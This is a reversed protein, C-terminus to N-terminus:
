ARGRSSGRVRAAAVLHAVRVPEPLASKDRLDALLRRAQAEDVGAFTLYLGAEIRVAAPARELIAIREALGAARLAEAVRSQAPDKRSVSIVPLALRRALDDLDVVALGALTLGGLAVAQLSPRFRLKEIWAALFRTVDPGDIPFSTVAVAEVRTAGETMVGVLATTADRRKDFPGDDVGLVHPRSALRAM